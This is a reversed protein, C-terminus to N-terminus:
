IWVQLHIQVDAGIVVAYCSFKKVLRNVIGFWSKFWIYRVLLRAIKWSICSLVEWFGVIEPLTVPHHM